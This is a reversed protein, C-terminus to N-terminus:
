SGISQLWVLGGQGDGVELTYEEVLSDLWKMRQWGGSISTLIINHQNLPFFINQIKIIESLKICQLILRITLTNCKSNTFKM